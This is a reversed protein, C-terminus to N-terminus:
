HTLFNVPAARDAPRAILFQAGARLEISLAELALPALLDRVAAVIASDVDGRAQLAVPITTACTFLEALAKQSMSALDAAMAPSLAAGDAARAAFAMLFDATDVSGYDRAMEAADIIIRVASAQVQAQM